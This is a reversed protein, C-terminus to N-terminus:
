PCHPPPPTPPPSTIFFENERNIGKMIELEGQEGAGGGGRLFSVRHVPPTPPCHAHPDGNIDQYVSLHIGGRILTLPGEMTYAALITLLALFRVWSHQM